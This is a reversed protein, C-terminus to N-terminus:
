FSRSGIEKSIRKFWDLNLLTENNVGKSMNGPKSKINGYALKLLV